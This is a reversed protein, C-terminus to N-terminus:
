SGLRLERDSLSSSPPRSSSKPATAEAGTTQQWDAGGCLSTPAPMPNPAGCDCPLVAAHADAHRYTANSTQCARTVTPRAQTRPRAYLDSRWAAISYTYVRAAYQPTCLQSWSRSHSKVNTCYMCSGSCCCPRGDFLEPMRWGGRASARSVATSLCPRTKDSRVMKIMFIDTDVALYLMARVRKKSTPVSIM